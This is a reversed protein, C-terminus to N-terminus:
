KDFACVAQEGCIPFGPILPFTHKHSLLIYLLIDLFIAILIISRSEDHSGKPLVVTDWYIPGEKIILIHKYTISFIFWSGVDCCTCSTSIIEVDNQDGEVANRVDVRVKQM